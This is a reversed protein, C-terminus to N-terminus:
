IKRCSLGFVSPDPAKSDLGNLTDANLSNCDNARKFITYPPNNLTRSPEKSDCSTWQIKSGVMVGNGKDVPTKGDLLIDGRSVSAILTSLVLIRVIMRLRSTM